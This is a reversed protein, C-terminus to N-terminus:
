QNRLIFWCCVIWLRGNWIKKAVMGKSLIFLEFIILRGLGLLIRIKGTLRLFGGVIVDFIEFLFHVFEVSGFWLIYLRERGWHFPLFALSQLILLDDDYFFLIFSAGIEAWILGEDYFMDVEILYFVFLRWLM